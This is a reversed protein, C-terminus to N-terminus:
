QFSWSWNKHASEPSKGAHTQVSNQNQPEVLLRATAATINWKAERSCMILSIWRENLALQWSTVTCVLPQATSLTCTCLHRRSCSLRWYSLGARNHRRAVLRGHSVVCRCRSPAARSDRRSTICKTVRHGQDKVKQVLIWRHALYRSPIDM